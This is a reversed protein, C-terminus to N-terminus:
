RHEPLCSEASYGTHRYGSGVAVCLSAADKCLSVAAAADVAAADGVSRDCRKTKGLRVCVCM